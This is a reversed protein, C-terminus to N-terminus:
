EWSFWAGYFPTDLYRLGQNLKNTDFDRSHLQVLRLLLDHKGQFRLAVDKCNPYYKGDYSNVQELIDLYASWTNYHDLEHSYAMLEPNAFPNDAYRPYQENWRSNDSKLM